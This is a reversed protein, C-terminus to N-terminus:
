GFLVEGFFLPAHFGKAGLGIYNWTLYHPRPTKHGCKYFNATMRWGPCLKAGPFFERIISFPVSYGIQWCPGRYSQWSQANLTTEIAFEADNESRPLYVFPEGPLNRKALMTGIANMEINIYHADADPDPRFFFECCSDASVADNKEFKTIFVEDEWVTFGVHLADDSYCLRAEVRAQYDNERWQNNLLPIAPVADTFLAERGSVHPITITNM